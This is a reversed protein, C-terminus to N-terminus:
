IESRCALRIISKQTLEPGAKVIPETPTVISEQRFHPIIRRAACILAESEAASRERKKALGSFDEILNVTRVEVLPESTSETVVAVLEISLIHAQIKSKEDTLLKKSFSVSILVIKSGNYIIASTVLPQSNAAFFNDTNRSAGTKLQAPSATCICSKGLRLAILRGSVSNQIIRTGTQKIEANVAHSRKM